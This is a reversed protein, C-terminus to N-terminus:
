ASGKTASNRRLREGLLYSWSKMQRLSTPMTRVSKTKGQHCVSTVKGIVQKWKVPRDGTINATGKFFLWRRRGWGLQFHLVHTIFRGEHQYALVDGPRVDEPAVQQVRVEDGESLVPAMSAGSVRMNMFAGDRILERVLASKIEARGM